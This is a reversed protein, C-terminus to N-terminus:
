TTRPLDLEITVEGDHSGSESGAHERRELLAPDHNAEPPTVESRGVTELESL